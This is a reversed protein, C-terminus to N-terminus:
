TDDAINENRDRPPGAAFSTVSSSVSEGTNSRECVERTVEPTLWDGAFRGMQNLTGNVKRESVLDLFPSQELQIRLAQKLADDFVPNLTTNTFDTLVITDRETLKPIRHSRWYLEGAILAVAIVATTGLLKTCRRLYPQQTERKIRELDSRIEVACQYRLNRDRKLCKQTVDQV